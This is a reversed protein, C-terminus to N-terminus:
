GFCVLSEQICENMAKGVATVDAIPDKHMQVKENVITLDGPIELHGPDTYTFYEWVGYAYAVQYPTFVHNPDNGNMFQEFSLSM